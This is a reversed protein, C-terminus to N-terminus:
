HISCLVTLRATTPEFGVDVIALSGGGRPPSWFIPLRCAERQAASMSAGASIAGCSCACRRKTGSRIGGPGCLRLRAGARGTRPRRPRLGAHLTARGPQLEPGRERRPFRGAVKLGLERTEGKHPSTKRPPCRSRLDVHLKNRQLELDDDPIVLAAEQGAIAAEHPQQGPRKMAKSGPPCSVASTTFTTRASIAVSRASSNGSADPPLRASNRSRAPRRRGLDGDDREVALGLVEDASCSARKSSSTSWRRRRASRCRSSSRTAM